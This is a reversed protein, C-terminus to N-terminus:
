RDLRILERLFPRVLPMAGEMSIGHGTNPLVETRVDV